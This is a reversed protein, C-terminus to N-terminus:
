LLKLLWGFFWLMALIAMMTGIGMMVKIMEVVMTVNM